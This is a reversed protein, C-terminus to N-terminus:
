VSIVPGLEGSFRANQVAAVQRSRQAIEPRRLPDRGQDFTYVLKELKELDFPEKGSAAAEAKARAM